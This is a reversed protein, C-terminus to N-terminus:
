INLVQQELENIRKCYSLIMQHGPVTTTSELFQLQKLHILATNQLISKKKPKYFPLTGWYTAFSISTTPPLPFTCTKQYYALQYFIIKNRYIIKASNNLFTIAIFQYLLWNTFPSFTGVSAGNQWKCHCCFIIPSLYLLVLGNGNEKLFTSSGQMSKQLFQNSGRGWSYAM